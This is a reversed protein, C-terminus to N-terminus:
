GPFAWIASSPGAILSIIEERPRLTLWPDPPLIRDRTMHVIGSEGKKRERLSREKDRIQQGIM